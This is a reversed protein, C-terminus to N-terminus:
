SGSDPHGPGNWENAQPSPLTTDEAAGKLVQLGALAQAIAQREAGSNQHNSRLQEIRAEIAAQASQILRPLRERNTELVAAEYFRQWGFTTM